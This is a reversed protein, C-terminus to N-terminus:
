YIDCIGVYKKVNKHLDQWYYKKYLLDAIKEIKFYDAYLNNYHIRM